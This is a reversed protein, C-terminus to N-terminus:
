RLILVQSGIRQKLMDKVYISTEIYNNTIGVVMKENGDQLTIIDKIVIPKGGFVTIEIQEELQERGNKFTPVLTVPQSIFYYVNEKVDNRPNKWSGKFPYVLRNCFLASKGNM